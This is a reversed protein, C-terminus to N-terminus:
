RPPSPRLLSRFTSGDEYRLDDLRWSGSAKALVAVVLRPRGAVDFRISVTAREADIEASGL